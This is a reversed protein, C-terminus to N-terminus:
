SSPAPVKLPRIGVAVSVTLLGALWVFDSVVFKEWFDLAFVEISDGFWWKPPNTLLLLSWVAVVTGSFRPTGLLTMARWAFVPIILALWVWHHSWSVPSVLLMVMANVMVADVTMGRRIMALMLWGGLVITIVSLALWLWNILGSHGDLWASDPAWRMLMGKISSNSQYTTDVGIEAGSSMGLLTSFYFEVTADFRWLAAILTCTVASLAAVAMSRFDRRLLWYLGFALPTLKIAAAIGILTGQPLLRRRYPALDLVVLAMLVINLQAFGNNLEVPEFNLVFAWTLATSLRLVAAPVGAMASRLVLHLCALILLNSVAIMIDGALDDSIFGPSLPVMVLAGFPPYIFPLAIDGAQMPQAYMDGGSLFAEVGRRYIIMDVPFDNAQIQRLTSAVGFFLGAWTLLTTAAAIARAPETTPASVTHRPSFFSM